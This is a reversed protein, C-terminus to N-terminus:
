DHLEISECIHAHVVLNKYLSYIMVVSFTHTHKLFLHVTISRITVKLYTCM